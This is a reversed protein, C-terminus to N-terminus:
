GTVAPDPQRGSRFALVCAVLVLLLSPLQFLQIMQIPDFVVVILFAVTAGCLPCRKPQPSEIGTHLTVRAQDM